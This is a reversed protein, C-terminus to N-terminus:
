LGIESPLSFALAQAMAVIRDHNAREFLPQDVASLYYSSLGRIPTESSVRGGAGTVFAVGTIQDRAGGAPGVGNPGLIAYDVRVTLTAGPPLRGALSSALLGPLAEQM